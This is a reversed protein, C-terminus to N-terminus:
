TFVDGFHNGNEKGNDWYLGLIVGIYWVRFGLGVLCWIRGGWSKFGAICRVGLDVVMRFGLM